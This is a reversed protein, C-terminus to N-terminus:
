PSITTCTCCSSSRRTRRGRAATARSGPSRAARRRRRAHASVSRPTQEEEPVALGGPVGGAPHLALEVGLEVVGAVALGGRGGDGDGRQRRGRQPGGVAHAGALGRRVDGLLGAEVRRVVGAQTLVEEGLALAQGVVLVGRERGLLERANRRRRSRRRARRRSRRRLHGAPHDLRQLSSSAEIAGPSSATATEWPAAIRSATGARSPQGTM